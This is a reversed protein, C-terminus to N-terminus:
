VVFAVNFGFLDVVAVGVVCVDVGASGVVTEEGDVVVEDSGIARDWAVCFVVSAGVVVEVVSGTATDLRNGVVVVAVVVWCSALVVGAEAVGDVM